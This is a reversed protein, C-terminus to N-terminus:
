CGIENCEYPPYQPQVSETKQRVEENTKREHPCVGHIGKAWNCNMCLVQFIVPFGNRKAWSYMKSGGMGRGNNAKQKETSAVDKRHASGDNNKHDLTLFDFENEGCCACKGGYHLIVLEKLKRSSKRSAERCKTQHTSRYKAASAKRGIPPPLLYRNARRPEDRNITM